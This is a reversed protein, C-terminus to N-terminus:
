CFAQGGSRLACTYSAGGSISVITDAPHFGTNDHYLVTAPIKANVTTANGLQGQQNNGWCRATGDAIVACTNDLGASMAVVSRLPLPHGSADLSSPDLVFVPTTEWA